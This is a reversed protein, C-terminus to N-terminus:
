LNYGDGVGKQKYKPHRPDFSIDVSADEPECSAPKNIVSSRFPEFVKVHFFLWFCTDNGSAKCVYEFYIMRKNAGVAVTNCDSKFKQGGGGWM